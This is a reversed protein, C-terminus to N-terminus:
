RVGIKRVKENVDTQSKLISETLLDTCDVSKIWSLNKIEEPLYSMNTTYIKDFTEKNKLFPNIGKTLLAFSSVLLVKKAKMEKLTRAVDIISSGSAIMDDVVIATKGEVSNGIYNHKVIKNEGNEVKSSRM